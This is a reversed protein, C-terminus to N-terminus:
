PQLSIEGKVQVADKVKVLGGAVRVPSIGFDRQKLAAVARYGGDEEVVEVSVPRTQGHLTLEGQITWQEPGTQAVATSQFRIEPYREVDLVKPGLMTRQIEARDKESADPDLVRLRRADIRLWVSPTESHDVEGEAIPAEILHDHGFVSFLGAKYVHVRLVSHAADIPLKWARSVAAGALAWCLVGATLILLRCLKVDDENPNWWVNGRLPPSLSPPKLGKEFLDENPDRRETAGSSM